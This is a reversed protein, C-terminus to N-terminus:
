PELAHKFQLAPVQDEDADLEHIRQLAPKHDDITVAEDLLM